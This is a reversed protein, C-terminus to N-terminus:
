RSHTLMELPSEEESIKPGGMRWTAHDNCKERYAEKVGERKMGKWKKM